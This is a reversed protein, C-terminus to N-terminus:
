DSAAVGEPQGRVHMSKSEEIGYSAPDDIVVHGVHAHAGAGIDGTWRHLRGVVHRDGHWGAEIRQSENRELHVGMVVSARDPDLFLTFEHLVETFGAIVSDPFEM